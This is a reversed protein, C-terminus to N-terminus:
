PSVPLELDVKVSDRSPEDREFDSTLMVTAGTDASPLLGSEMPPAARVALCIQEPALLVRVVSRFRGESDTQLPPDRPELSLPGKGGESPCGLRWAVVEVQAGAVGGDNASTVSGYVIASSTCLDCGSEQPSDCAGLLVVLLVMLCVALGDLQRGRM